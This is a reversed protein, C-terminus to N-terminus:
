KKLGMIEYLIEIDLSKRVIDALKDLEKDRISEYVVSKKPTIEKKARLKNVILERFNVGDFVGHIYTGMVTGTENVAGDTYNVVDSNKKNVNFLPKAKEGLNTKGMHIEYGYLSIEEENNLAGLCLSAEVRTTVKKEEFSTNVDLLGLGEMKM